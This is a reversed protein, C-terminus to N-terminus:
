RLAVRRLENGSFLNEQDFGAAQLVAPPAIIDTVENDNINLGANFLVNGMDQIDLSYTAIIDIGKTKSDIANLFFRGRNAGTGKLLGSVADGSLNNSLVIRDKL